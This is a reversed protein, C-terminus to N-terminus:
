VTEGEITPGAFAALEPVRPSAKFGAWTEALDFLRRNVRLTQDIGTLARTSAKRRKGTDTITLGQIGGRTLNEQVRNFVTWLDNGADVGRRVNDTLMYPSIPARAVGTEADIAYRISFAQEAFRHRDDSDMEIGRFTEITEAVRSFSDVIKHSADVVKASVDKGVHAVGIMGWATGVTMGNLCALRLMGAFLMYKSTGDHANRLCVEPIVDGVKTLPSASPLRMRILHKEFGFRTSKDKVRQVQVGHIKFGQAELSRLTDATGIHQFKASRSAHPHTAGLTPYRAIIDDATMANYPDYSGLVRLM